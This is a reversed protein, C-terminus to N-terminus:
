LFMFDFTGFLYTSGVCSLSKALRALHNLTRKHVLHNHIQTWSCTLLYVFFHTGPNRIRSARSSILPSSIISLRFIINLLTLFSLCIRNYHSITSLRVVINLLTLSPLYIRNSHLSLSMLLTVICLLHILLFFNLFAPSPNKFCLTWLVHFQLSRSHPLVFCCTWYSSQLFSFLDVIFLTVIIFAIM